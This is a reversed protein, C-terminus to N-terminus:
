ADKAVYSGKGCLHLIRAALKERFNPEDDPGLKDRIPDDLEDQSWFITNYQNIDFHWRAKSEDNEECTHIVTRGLAYGFGAEWYVGGRSGKKVRVSPGEATEVQEVQEPRCTFDAVVLRAQRLGTVVKDMIFGTFEEQDVIIPKYGCHEVTETVAKRYEKTEDAFWMAVFASKSEVQASELEEVKLWGKGTIVHQGERVEIYGLSTLVHSLGRLEEKDKAAVDAIKSPPDVIGTTGAYAPRIYRAQCLLYAYAKDSITTPFPMHKFQERWAQDQTNEYSIHPLSGDWEAKVLADYQQRIWASVLHVTDPLLDSLSSHM